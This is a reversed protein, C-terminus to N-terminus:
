FLPTHARPTVRIGWVLNPGSRASGLVIYNCSREQNNKGESYFSNNFLLGRYHININHIYCVLSIQM